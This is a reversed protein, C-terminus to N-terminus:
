DFKEYYGHPIQDQDHYHSPLFDCLDHIVEGLSVVDNRQDHDAKVKEVNTMLALNAVQKALGPDGLIMNGHKTRFINKTSIDRHVNKENDTHIFKLGELMQIAMEAIDNLPIKDKRSLRGIYNMLSEGDILEM